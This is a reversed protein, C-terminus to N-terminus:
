KAQLSAGDCDLLRVRDGIHIEGETLIKGYVGAVARLHKGPRSTLSEVEPMRSLASWIRPDNNLQGQSLTTM